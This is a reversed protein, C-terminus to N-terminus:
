DLHGEAPDIHRVGYSQTKCGWQNLIKKLKKFWMGGKTAEMQKIELQHKEFKQLTKMKKDKLTFSYSSMLIFKKQEFFCVM